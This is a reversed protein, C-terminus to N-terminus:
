HSDICEYDVLESDHLEASTTDILSFQLHETLLKEMEVDDDATIILEAMIKVYVKRM